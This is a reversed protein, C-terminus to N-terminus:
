NEKEILTQELIKILTTEIDSADAMIEDHSLKRTKVELKYRFGEVHQFGVINDYYIQWEDSPNNKSQLCQVGRLEGNDCLVTKEHIYLISENEDLSTAFSNKSSSSNNNCGTFYLTSLTILALTCLRKM